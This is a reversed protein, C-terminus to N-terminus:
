KSAFKKTIEKNYKCFDAFPCSLCRPNKSLCINRGFLIFQRHLHILHYGKYIKELKLECDKPSIDKKVLGLRTSVRLVHTDVPFYPEDYLEGLFVGSTKFGVGPLTQLEERNKPIVGNYKEVLIRATKLIFDTKNKSLGVPKIIKYVDNYKAELFSNLTPYEKFLVETAKNVSEDTAQASLIIAFLLEYDKNYKLFTKTNPFLVQLVIPINKIDKNEM